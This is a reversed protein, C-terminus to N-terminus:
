HALLQPTRRQGSPPLGFVGVLLASGIRKAWSIDGLVLRERFGAPGPHGNGGYAEDDRDRDRGAEAGRGHVALDSHGLLALEEETWGSRAPAQADAV